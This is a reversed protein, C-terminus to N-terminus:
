QVDEKIGLLNTLEVRKVITYRQKPKQIENILSTRESRGEDRFFIFCIPHGAMTM